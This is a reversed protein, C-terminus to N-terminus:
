SRRTADPPHLTVSVIDGLTTERPTPTTRGIGGRPQVRPATPVPDVRRPAGATPVRPTRPPHPSRPPDVRPAIPQVPRLGGEVETPPTPDVMLPSGATAIEPEAPPTGAPLHGPGTIDPPGGLTTAGAHHVWGLALGIERVTQSLDGRRLSLGAASGHAGLEEARTTGCVPADAAYVAGGAIAAVGAAVSLSLARRGVSGQGPTMAEPATPGPEARVEELSPLPSSSPAPSPRRDM